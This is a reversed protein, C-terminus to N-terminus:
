KVCAWVRTCIYVHVGAVMCRKAACRAKSIKQRNRQVYPESHKTSTLVSQNSKVVQRLTCVCVLIGYTPTQIHTHAYIHTYSHVHAHICTHTHTRTHIHTNSTHTHEFAVRGDLCGHARCLCADSHSVFIGWRMARVCWVAPLPIPIPILALDSTDVGAGVCGCTQVCLLM